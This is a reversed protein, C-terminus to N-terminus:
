QNMPTTTPTSSSIDFVLQCPKIWLSSVIPLPAPSEETVCFPTATGWFHEHDPLVPNPVNTALPQNLTSDMLKAPTPYTSSHYMNAYYNGTKYHSEVPGMSRLLMNISKRHTTFTERDGQCPM